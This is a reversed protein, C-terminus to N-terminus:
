SPPPREGEPPALPELFPHYQAADRLGGSRQSRLLTLVMFAALLAMLAAWRPDEAAATLPLLEAAQLDAGPMDPPRALQQAARIETPTSDASGAESSLAQRAAYSWLSLTDAYHDEARLVVSLITGEDTHAAALLCRGARNTFGTKVGIADERQTLLKNGNPITKETGDPWAITHRPTSVIEALLPDALLQRGFIAMDYASSYHGDADLGHPNRFASDFAGLSRAKENMLEIFHDYGLPHHEALAVAADNGSRLLLAYLLDRVTFAMGTELGLRSGRTSAAVDRAAVIEDLDYRDRVVLATVAKTLSAPPRRTRADKEYLVAGDDLDVLIAAEAGMEPPGSAPPTDQAAAPVAVAALAVLLLSLAAHRRM